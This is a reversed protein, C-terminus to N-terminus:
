YATPDDFPEETDSLRASIWDDIEAWMDFLWSEQAEPGPIDEAPVRWVRVAVNTDTPIGRWIDGPTVFTELGAHGVFIVDTDHPANALATMVGKSRPPLTNELQEAREALDPRGMERLKEISRKARKETYNAGEPFIVFADNHDMTAAMEAIVEIVLDRGRSGSPVFASPLRNLMVDMMPDWQLFEKMVIRPQRKFTNALGDMLLISDGPGAHRSLVMVPRTHQLRGSTSPPAGERIVSLKFTFKASAVVRRMAWAMLLYHADIFAPARIRLGFGSIVWLSFMVTLTAAEVLLYLFLFWVIRLPRWKGPVYRSIFAAGIVVVPLTVAAALVGIVM